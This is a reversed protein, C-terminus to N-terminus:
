RGLLAKSLPGRETSILMGPTVGHREFWGKNVELVYQIQDSSALIPSEDRPKMDHLEEITGEPNIYACSLPLLTNRMWFSTQHPQPFVFLMAEMEAMNTRWMMGAMIQQRTRAVEAIIENTGIWLKVTPLRPQPRGEPARPIEDAPRAPVSRDIETPPPAPSTSDNECGAGLLVAAAMIIWLRVGELMRSKRSSEFLKMGLDM